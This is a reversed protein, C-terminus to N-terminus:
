MIIEDIHILLTLTRMGVNSAAPRSDVAITFNQVYEGCHNIATIEASYTGYPLTIITHSEVTRTTSNVENIEIVFMEVDELSNWTVNVEATKDAYSTVDSSIDLHSDNM